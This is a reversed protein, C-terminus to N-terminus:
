LRRHKAIPMRCGHITPALGAKTGYGILIFIFATKMLNPNLQHAITVLYDWNLGLTKEGGAQTVATYTLIIGILAFVIGVTCLIIYKWAAEVTSQQNYYGVLFASVLTTAEIGIWLLGLSNTTVVVLM